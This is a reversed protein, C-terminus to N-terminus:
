VGSVEWLAQRLDSWIVPRDLTWVKDLARVFDNGMTGPRSCESVGLMRHRIANRENPDDTAVGLILMPSVLFMDPNRKPRITNLIQNFQARVNVVRTDLSDAGCLGQVIMDTSSPCLLTPGVMYLYILAATFWCEQVVLRAVSLSPEVSAEIIPKIDKIEAELEDVVDKGVRPGFDEFLANMKAFTLVLRDPVGYLWRLAPGDELFFQSEPAEPTFEVDYRFFMPRGTLVGLLVDLTGYYQLPLNITTLLTPLNILGQLSDSCARRFVPAAIQMTSLVSSLSAVHCLSSILEYTNLMAGLAYQRDLERSAELHSSAETLVRLIFDHITFLSPVNSLDYDASRSIEYVNIALLNSRWRAEEGLDYVWFAYDRALHVIRLPEFLFRLLWLAHAQLIFPLCNSQVNRDLPLSSVLAGQVNEPDEPDDLDTDTELPSPPRAPGPSLSIWTPDLQDDPWALSLLSQLCDARGSSMTIVPTYDDSEHLSNPPTLLQRVVQHQPSFTSKPTERFDSVPSPGISNHKLSPDDSACPQEMSGARGPSETPTGTPSLPTAPQVVIARQLPLVSTNGWGIVSNEIHGMASYTRPEVCEGPDSDPWACRCGTDSTRCVACHIGSSALYSM